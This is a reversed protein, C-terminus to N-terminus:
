QVTKRPVPASCNPVLTRAVTDVETGLRTRAAVTGTVSVDCQVIRVQDVGAGDCSRVIAGLNGPDTVGDVAVLFPSRDGRRRPELTRFYRTQWHDLRLSLGRHRSESAPRLEM